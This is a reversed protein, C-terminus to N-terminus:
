GTSDVFREVADVEADLHERLGSVLAREVSAGVLPARVRLDGSLRRAAGDGAPVIVAEGTCRLRDRYHDPLLVIDTRRARLDHTSREVWTLRDPDIVATVASSLHGTFRFRVDLHVVDGDVRHALVEPASLKPLGGFTGYLAPDAYVRAVVDPDVAFRQDVEFRM